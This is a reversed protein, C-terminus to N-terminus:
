ETLSKHHLVLTQTWLENKDGYYVNPHLIIYNSEPIIFNLPEVNDGYGVKVEVNDDLLSLKNVLEGVTM